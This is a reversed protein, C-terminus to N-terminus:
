WTVGYFGGKKDNIQQMLMEKMRAQNAIKRQKMALINEESEEPGFNTKYPRM